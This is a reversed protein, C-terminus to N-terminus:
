ACSRPMPWNRTANSCIPSPTRSPMASPSRRTAPGQDPRAKPLDHRELLQLSAQPDAQCRVIEEDTLQGAAIPSQGVINEAVEGDAIGQIELEHIACFDGIQKFTLTTNDILWVATAQPMLLQAM